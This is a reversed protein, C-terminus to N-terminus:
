AMSQSKYLNKHLVLNAEQKVIQWIMLQHEDLQKFFALSFNFAPYM